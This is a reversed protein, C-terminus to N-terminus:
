EIYYIHFTNTLHITSFYYYDYYIIYHKYVQLDKIQQASLPTFEGPTPMHQRILANIM